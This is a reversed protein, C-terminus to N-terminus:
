NYVKYTASRKIEGRLGWHKIGCTVFQVNNIKQKIFEKEWIFKLPNL